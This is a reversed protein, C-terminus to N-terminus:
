DRLREWRVNVGDTDVRKTGDSFTITTVKGRHNADLTMEWTNSNGSTYKECLYMKGKNWEWTGSTSYSTQIDRCTYTKDDKLEVLYKSTGWNVHFKGHKFTGPKYVPVPAFAFLMLCIIIFNRM